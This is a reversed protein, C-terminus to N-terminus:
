TKHSPCPVIISFFNGGNDFCYEFNGCEGYRTICPSKFYLHTYCQCHHPRCEFMYGGPYCRFPGGCAEDLDCRIGGLLEGMESFSFNGEEIIKFKKM